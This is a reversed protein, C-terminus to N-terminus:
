IAITEPMTRATIGLIFRNLGICANKHNPRYRIGYFIFTAIHDFYVIKRYQCPESTKPRVSVLIRCFPRLNGNIATKRSYMTDIVM